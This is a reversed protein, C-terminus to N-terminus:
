VNHSDVLDERTVAGTKRKLEKWRFAILADSSEHTRRSFVCWEIRSENRHGISGASAGARARDLNHFRDLVAEAQFGHRVQRAHSGADRLQALDEGLKTLGPYVIDQCEATVRWTPLRLKASRCVTQGM